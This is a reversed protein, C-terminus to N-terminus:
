AWIASIPMAFLRPGFSLTDEGAHLVVGAAFRRGAKEALWRLGRFDRNTVTAGSKVEIGAVRGDRAELVGDVETADKTRLHHLSASVHSWALQRRLEMLAFTEALPGLGAGADPGALADADAGLLHACLGADAVYAKPASVARQTRNNSWAPIRVALFTAELLEMYRRATTPALRADRALEDLNLLNASRAAVLRLLLRLNVRHEIDAFERVDRDLYTALYGEFWADRRRGPTRSCAEPFGGAVIREALTRRDIPAPDPWKAESDFMRDVFRERVGAVEGQTLPSLEVIEIRGALTESLRPLMMLHASGTLLFRGPEPARDARAKIALLLGPARQIEDIVLLGEHLVFHAPDAQAAALTSPDDLTVFRAGPTARAVAAALTTKGVQRAGHLVVVRTDALAARVAAAAHRDFITPRKM